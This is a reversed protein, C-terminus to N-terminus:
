RWERVSRMLVGALEDDESSPKGGERKTGPIALTESKNLLKASVAVIYLLMTNTVIFVIDGVNPVRCENRSGFTSKWAKLAVSILGIHRFSNVAIQEGDAARNGVTCRCIYWGNTSFFALCPNSILNM